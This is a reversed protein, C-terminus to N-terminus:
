VWLPWASPGSYGLPPSVLCHVMGHPTRLVPFGCPPQPVTWTPCPTEGLPLACPQPYLPLTLLSRGPRDAPLVLASCLERSCPFCVPQSGVVPM